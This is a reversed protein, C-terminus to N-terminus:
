KRLMKGITWAADLTQKPCRQFLYIVGGMIMGIFFLMLIFLGTLSM